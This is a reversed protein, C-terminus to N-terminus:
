PPRRTLSAAVRDSGRVDFSWGPEVGFDSGALRKGHAPAEASFDRTTRLTCRAIM